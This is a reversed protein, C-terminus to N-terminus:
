GDDACAEVDVVFDAGAAGGARPSALRCFRQENAATSSIRPPADGSSAPM